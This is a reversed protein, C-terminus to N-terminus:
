KFKLLDKFMELINFLEYVRIELSFGLFVEYIIVYFLCEVEVYKKDMLDFEKCYVLFLDIIILLIIYFNIM